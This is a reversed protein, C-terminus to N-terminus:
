APIGEDPHGSITAVVHDLAVRDTPRVTLTVIGDSPAVVRHEMKMAEIVLLTQGAVVSDGTAVDTSVVIGPMPSRVDPDVAREGRTRMSLDDALREVRSIVRLEDAGVWLVPGDVAIRRSHVVGDVEVDMSDSARRVVSACVPEDDGIAV